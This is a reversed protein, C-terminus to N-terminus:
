KSGSEETSAVPQAGETQEAMKQAGKPLLAFSANATHDASVIIYGFSALYDCWFTNQHRNGGNGHSFIILPFKGSGVRADRVSRDWFIQDLEALPKKYAARVARAVEPTVGGLLFDSYKNRPMSRAEETAPYWIETVLTRPEKTFADTRSHDVWVT